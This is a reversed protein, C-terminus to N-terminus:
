AAAIARAIIGPVEPHLGIPDLVRGAFGSAAVAGPIDGTVHGWRAVFLPLLVAQPGADSLTDALHPPEEIFGLRLDGFDHAAAIADRTAAAAESPQRSVGSGHAALILTTDAPAWGVETCAAAAVDGVLALTDPLVGFPTLVTLGEGGAAALRRPLNVRIFWGDAMFFPFILPAGLRRVAADLTGIGALTASGVQWGSLHRAVRAAFAAMEREPGDPDSPQGHAVILASGSRHTM